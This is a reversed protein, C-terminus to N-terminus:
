QCRCYNDWLSGTLLSSVLTQMPSARLSSSLASCAMVPRWVAGHYQLASTAKVLVVLAVCVFGRGRAAFQYLQSPHRPLADVYPFVMGWPLETPRGWLEGGIFNGVRGAGLGFPVLPAVFDMTEFFPKGLRRSYWGFAALVGLLGGHFAMGGEWVRFLWSPDALFRDFNYFFVSGLRGGIVAGMAGYFVLDSIQEDSWSGPSKHARYLALRWIGAFAVIYMLGYWHISLPGLSLAVPDFQPHTLM